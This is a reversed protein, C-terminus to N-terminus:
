FAIGNKRFIHENLKQTTVFIYNEERKLAVRPATQLRKNAM